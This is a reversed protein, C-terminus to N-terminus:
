RIGGQAQAALEAMGEVADDIVQVHVKQRQHANGRFVGREIPCDSFDRGHALAIYDNSVLANNTPDVGRWHCGDYVEVWAHTEGEGILFGNVYRAAVGAERCLAVLVHAFDQCVGRGGALAEEACTGVDTVGQEYAMTAHLANSLRLAKDYPPLNRCVRLVDEAFAAVHPGPQTMRSPRLYMPHLPESADTEVEVVVTGSSTFSFERHKPDIRGVQVLNGFGDTQHAITTTPTVMTQAELVTQTPTTSPLCRLVFNHRTVPESFRLETEFSFNLIKM